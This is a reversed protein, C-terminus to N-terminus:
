DHLFNENDFKDDDFLSVDSPYMAQLETVFESKPHTGTVWCTTNLWMSLSGMSLSGLRTLDLLPRLEDDSPPTLDDQLLPIHRLATFPALGALAGECLIAGGSVRLDALRLWAKNVATLAWTSIQVTWHVTLGRYLCVRYAFTKILPHSRSPCSQLDGSLHQEFLTHKSLHIAKPRRVAHKYRFKVASGNSHRCIALRNFQKGICPRGNSHMEFIFDAACDVRM